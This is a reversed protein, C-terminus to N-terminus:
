AAGRKLFEPREAILDVGGDDIEPGEASTRDAGVIGGLHPVMQQAEPTRPACASSYGGPSGLAEGHVVLDAGQHGNGQGAEAGDDGGFGGAGGGTEGPECTGDIEVFGGANGDQGGEDVVCDPPSGDHRRRVEAVMEVAISAFGKAGQQSGDSKRRQDVNRHAIDSRLFNSFTRPWDKRRKGNGHWYDRFNDALWDTEATTYGEGQGIEYNRGDPKWDDALATAGKPKETPPSVPPNKSVEIPSPPPCADPMAGPMSAADDGGWRAHAAKRAQDTRRAQNEAAKRLEEDIRAHHWEGNKQTFFKGIIPRIKKWKHPSIKAINKLQYDDDPLPRGSSWYHGMLLFYVGHETPGLNLTDKLYDGWYIPMWADVDKM